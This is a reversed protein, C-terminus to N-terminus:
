RLFYQIMTGSQIPRRMWFPRALLVLMRIRIVGSDEYEGGDEQTADELVMAGQHGDIAAEATRGSSPEAIRSSTSVRIASREQGDGHPSGHALITAMVPPM